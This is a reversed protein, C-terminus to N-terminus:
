PRSIKHLCALRDDWYLGKKKVGHEKGIISIDLGVIKCIEPGDYSGLTIDSLLESLLKKELNTKLFCYPKEPMFFSTFSSNLSVQMFNPTNM